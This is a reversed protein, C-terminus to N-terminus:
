AKKVSITVESDGVECTKTLDAEIEGGFIIDDALLESLMHAKSENLANMVYDSGGSIAMVVRQEVEYGAEKRILQCQRM